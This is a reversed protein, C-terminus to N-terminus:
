KHMQHNSHGSIAHRAHDSLQADFWQHIANILAPSDTSYNIEAGDPLEKYVIDIQNPKAKRLEDLGPMTDGHIKAPNSFNGQKFEDSIKTLHERILKIQETNAPDKVIVQQVGGNATKSFVHTTEELVFPMVHSGRQVVEDLRQESAKEVAHAPITVLLAILIPVVTLQKM